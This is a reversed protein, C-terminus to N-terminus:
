KSSECKPCVPFEVSIPYERERPTKATTQTRQYESLYNSMMIQMNSIFSFLGSHYSNIEENQQEYDDIINWSQIEEALQGLVETISAEGKSLEIIENVDNEVSTTLKKMADTYSTYSENTQTHTENVSEKTETLQTKMLKNYKHEGQIMLRIREKGGQQMIEVRSKENHLNNTNSDTLSNYRTIHHATMKEIQDNIVQTFEAFDNSIEEQYLNININFQQIEKDLDNSMGTCHDIIFKEYEDLESKKQEHYTNLALRQKEIKDCIAIYWLNM